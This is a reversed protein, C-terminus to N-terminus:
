KGLERLAEKLLGELTLGDGKNSLKGVVKRAVEKKYGLNILASIVDGEIQNVVEKTKGNKERNGTLREWKDRLDVIIREAVKRGVGPIAKLRQIDRVLIANGLEVPTIGSLINRALRPGIGSVGILFDFAYREEETLFGYLNLQDDRVIMRTRLTVINEIDPLGYFTSLSIFIRYGVGNVEVVIFETSKFVLKGTVHDIM